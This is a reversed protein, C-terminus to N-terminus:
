ERIADLILFQPTQRFPPEVLAKLRFGCELLPNVIAEMPRHFFSVERKKGLIDWQETIRTVAFYDDVQGITINPHHTSMLFRGGRRLVRAFERLPVSWDEVYHMTLSSFVIDFSESEIAELSRSLDALVYAGRNATRERAIDLMASSNDLCVVHAGRDLMYAAHEGSACGADLITKGQVDGLRRQMAPREYGVNYECVATHAAYERAYEGYLSM